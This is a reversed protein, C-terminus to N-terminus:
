ERESLLKELEEKQRPYEFLDTHAKEIKDAIKLAERANYESFNDKVLIYSVYFMLNLLKPNDDRYKLAKRLKRQAETYDKKQVLYNVYDLYTNLSKVNLNLAAEYYERTKSDNALGAYCKAEYLFRLNSEACKQLCKISTDYENRKFARIGNVLDDESQSDFDTNKGTLIECLELNTKVDKNDPLKEKINLLKDYAEDFKEFIMLSKAWELHFEPNIMGKQSATDFSKLANEEDLQKTYLQGLLVYAPLMNPNISLSKKAYRIAEEFDDKVAKLRAYEFTNGENPAVKMLFSLKNEAKDYMGLKIEMVSSLFMASFNYKNIKIAKEFLEHAENLRNMKMLTMGWGTFTDTNVPQVKDANEFSKEAQEFKGSSLLAFGLRQWINKDNPNLDASQQYNKVALEFAGTKEYVLGLYKYVLSDKQPLELAKLLLGEAELFRNKEIFKKARNVYTLTPLSQIITDKEYIDISKSLLSIKNFLDKIRGFM